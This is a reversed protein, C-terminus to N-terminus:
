PETLPRAPDTPLAVEVSLGGDPSPQATVTGRHSTAVAKVIALGLGFGRTGGHLRDTSGRRLPVFLGDITAADLMGGGNSVRVVGRDHGDNVEVRVWGGDVNHVVANEVLNRVLHEMLIPDAPVTSTELATTITIGREAAGDEVAALVDRTVEDLAVPRREGTRESVALALLGDILRSSGDVADRVTTAMEELDDRSVEAQALTVDLKTRIRTLPTRLEHSANAIFLRQASFAADLRALMEDFTDALERLEDDPGELAIPEHLNSGSLSRARQTIRRLPRLSRGAMAWGLASSVIAMFALLAVSILLLHTLLQSRTQEQVGTAVDGLTAGRPPLSILGGRRGDFLTGAPLGLDREVKTRPDSSGATSRATLFYVSGILLAGTVVFLVTHVLTLRLRITRM